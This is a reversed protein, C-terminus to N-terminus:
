EQRRLLLCSGKEEYFSFFTSPQFARFKLSWKVKNKVIFFCAAAKKKMFPSSFPHSFRVSSSVGCSEFWSFFVLSRGFALRPSVAIRWRKKVIHLLLL